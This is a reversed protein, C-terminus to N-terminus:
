RGASKVMDCALKCILIAPLFLFLGRIFATGRKMAARTGTCAGPMNFAAMATAYLVKGSPVFYAPAAINTAINVSKVSATVQLFGSTFIRIALFIL